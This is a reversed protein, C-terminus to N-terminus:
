WPIAAGRRTEFGKWSVCALILLCAALGTMVVLGTERFGFLPVLVIGTCFGGAASGLYDCTDTYSAAAGPSMGTGQMLRMVMVFTWGLAAGALLVQAPIVWAAMRGVGLSSVTGAILLLLGIGEAVGAAAKRPIATGMAGAARAGVVAGLMFMAVLFGIQSYLYGRLGQFAYLLLLELSVAAFGVGGMVLGIGAKGWAAGRGIGAAMWLVVGLLIAAYVKGIAVGELWRMVAEAGSGSYRSWLILMRFCSVPHELSNVGGGASALRRAVAAVRDPAFAGSVSFYEPRFFQARPAVRRWRRELEGPDLTLSGPACTAFFPLPSEAAVKVEPFEAKLAKHVSAAVRVADKEMQESAEVSTYLFGGPALLRRADAYFERTYFRNIGATLPDPVRVLIVDYLDSATKVYRVGDMHHTTLRPDAEASALLSPAARRVMADSAADLDVRVLRRLPYRLLVPIEGAPNGGIVLVRAADPKQAMVTHVVHEYAYPDPFSYAAQGDGYLTYQGSSEVLALHQYRTDGWDVLRPSGGAGVVGLRVWRRELTMRDVAALAGPVAAGVLAVAAVVGYPLRRLGSATLAAALCGAALAVSTWQLGNAREALVFTCLAGGAVSGLAEAAYVIGAGKGPKHREWVACASPFLFGATFCVPMLAVAALGTLRQLSIYEGTGSPGGGACRLAVLIAPGALGAAAFLGAGTRRWWAETARDANRRGARAGIATWVLWVTIVLGITLENGTGLVLLERTFAFQATLTLVGLLFM